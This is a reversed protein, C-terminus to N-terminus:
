EGEVENRIKKFISIIPEDTRKLGDIVEMLEDFDAHAQPNKRISDVIGLFRRYGGVDSFLSADIEQELQTEAVIRRYEKVANKVNEATDFYKKYKEKLEEIELRLFDKNVKDLFESDRDKLQKQFAEKCLPSNAILLFSRDTDVLKLPLDSPSFPLDMIRAKWRQYTMGVVTGSIGVLTGIVALPSMGSVVTAFTTSARKVIDKLPNDRKFNEYLDRAKDISEQVSENELLTDATHVGSELKNLLPEFKKRKDPPIFDLVQRVLNVNKKIKGIWEQAVSKDKEVQKSEIEKVKDDYQKALREEGKQAARHGFYFGIIATLITGLSGPFEALNMAELLFIYLSFIITLFTIVARVTGTPLGVPTSLFTNLTGHQRVLDMTDRHLRQMYYGLALVLVFLFVISVIMWVTSTQQPSQAAATTDTSLTQLKDSGPQFALLPFSFYFFICCCFFLIAYMQPRNKM